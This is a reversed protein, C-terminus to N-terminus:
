LVRMFSWHRIQASCAEPGARQFLKLIGDRCPGVNGKRRGFELMCDRWFSSLAKLLMALGRIESRVEAAMVGIETAVVM